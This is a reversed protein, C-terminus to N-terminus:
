VHVFFEFVNDRETNGFFLRDLGCRDVGRLRDACVSFRTRDLFAFEGVDKDNILIVIDFENYDFSFYLDIIQSQKVPAQLLSHPIGQRRENRM